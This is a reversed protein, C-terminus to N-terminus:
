TGPFISPMSRAAATMSSSTPESRAASSKISSTPPSATLRSKPIESSGFRGAAQKFAETLLDSRDRHKDLEKPVIHQSRNVITQQAQM